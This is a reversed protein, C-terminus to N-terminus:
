TEQSLFHPGQERGTLTIQRETFGVENWTPATSTLSIIRADTPAANPKPIWICSKTYYETDVIFAELDDKYTDIWPNLNISLDQRGKHKVYKIVVGARTTSTSVSSAYMNPDYPLKPNNKLQRRRFLWLEGIKPTFGTGIFKLQFHSVGSYRQAVTAGSDELNLSCLRKTGSGIPGTSWITEKRVTFAADDAIEASMYVGSLGSHNVLLIGDFDAPSALTCHLYYDVASANPYAQLHTLRDTLRSSAGTETVASGDVTTTWKFTAGDLANSAALIPKDLAALALDAVSVDAGSWVM